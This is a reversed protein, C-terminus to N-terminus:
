GTSRHLILTSAQWDAAEPLLDHLKPHADGNRNLLKRLLFSSSDKHLRETTPARNLDM